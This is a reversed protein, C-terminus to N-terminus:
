KNGLLKTMSWYRQHRSIIGWVTKWGDMEMKGGARIDVSCHLFYHELGIFFGGTTFCFFTVYFCASLQATLATPVLPIIINPKWNTYSLKNLYYWWYVNNISADSQALQCSCAYILPLSWYWCHALFAKFPILKQLKKYVKRILKSYLCHFPM